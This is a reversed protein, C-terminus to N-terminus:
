PYDRSGHLKHLDPQRKERKATPCLANAPCAKHLPNRARCFRRGLTILLLHMALYDSPQYLHELSGRIGEYSAKLPALGLRRSVRYVHTDVPVTPKKAVFLLVVDATKPGVGPISMLLERSKELPESFIFGLSGHFETCVTKSLEKIKRAKNRYLGGVRIAEELEKLDADALVEPEIKYKRTLNAYARDRNRDNTAQSLVTRVLAKFAGSRSSSVEPVGFEKSLIQLIKQAREKERM